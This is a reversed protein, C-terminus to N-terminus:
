WKRYAKSAPVNWYRGFVFTMYLDLEDYGNSKVKQDNVIIYEDVDFTLEGIDKVYQNLNVSDTQIGNLQTIPKLNLDCLYIRKNGQIM